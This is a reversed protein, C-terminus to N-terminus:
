VYRVSVVDRLRERRWRPAEDLRASQQQEADARQEMINLATEPDWGSDRLAPIEEYTPGRLVARELQREADSLVEDFQEPGGHWQQRVDNTVDRDGSRIRLGGRLGFAPGSRYGLLTLRPTSSHDRSRWRM